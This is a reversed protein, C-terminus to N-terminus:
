AAGEQQLALWLRRALDAYTQDARLEFVSPRPRELPVTVEEIVRGPNTGFVVIRDALLIAEDIDHTVFIVTKRDRDWLDLLHLQLQARLQADLAGFPEDMLLTDPEYVLCRALAVRKRMGGSLQAPYHDRFDDLGVRALVSRVRQRREQRSGLRRIDLGLAVNSAVTAWPLLTDGQTMYGADTNVGRLARGKFEIEGSTPKLLGAAMNLLTTKGCGSPGLLCTFSSEAFDLSFRDLATFSSGDPSRFRRRVDRFAFAPPPAMGPAPPVGETRGEVPNATRM